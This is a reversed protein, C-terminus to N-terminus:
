GHWRTGYGGAWTRKAREEISHEEEVSKASPLGTENTLLLRM